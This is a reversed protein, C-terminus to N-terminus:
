SSFFDRGPIVSLIGFTPKANGGKSLCKARQGWQPCVGGPGAWNGLRDGAPGVGLLFLSLAMRDVRRAGSYQGSEREVRTRRTDEEGGGVLGSSAWFMRGFPV